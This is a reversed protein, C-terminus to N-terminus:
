RYIRLIFGPFSRKTMQYYIFHFHLNSIIALLWDASRAFIHFEYLGSYSKFFKISFKVIIKITVITM